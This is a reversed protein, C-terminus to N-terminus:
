EEQDYKSKLLNITSTVKDMHQISITKLGLVRNIYNILEVIDEPYSPQNFCSKIEILRERYQDQKSIKQKPSKDIHDLYFRTWYIGQNRNKPPLRLM